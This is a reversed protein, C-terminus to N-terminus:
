SLMVLDGEGVRQYIRVYDIMYDIPFITDKNAPTGLQVGKETMLYNNMILYYYDHFCQMGDGRKGFDNVATIDITSYIEGDVMFNLAEETRLLSYTHWEEALAENKFSYAGRKNNSLQFHESSGDNYWKHIQPQLETPEAFVEFIDIEGMLLPNSREYTSAKMWFSPFVADGFPVKARMEVYGYKFAMTASTTLSSNTSYTNEDIRNARLTVNGDKIFVAREDNFVKLDDQESMHNYLSWKDTDLTNSNFEDSWVLKYEELINGKQNLNAPVPKEKGVETANEEYGFYDSLFKDTGKELAILSKGVIYIDGEDTVKILYENSGLSKKLSESLPRSTDGVIIEFGENAEYDAILPVSTGSTARIVKQVLRGQDYGDNALSVVITYASKGNKTINIEDGIVVTSSNSSNDSVTNDSSTDDVSTDPQDPAEVLEIWESYVDETGGCGALVVTLALLLILFKLVKNNM